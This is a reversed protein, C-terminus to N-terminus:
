GEAFFSIGDLSYCGTSPSYVGGDSRIEVYPAPNSEPEYVAYCSPIAFKETAGVRYGAPLYFTATSTCGAGGSTYDNVSGSLHVFGMSDKRYAVHALGGEANGYAYCYHNPPGSDCFAGPQAACGPFPIGATVPIPTGANVTADSGATGQAGQPGVPGASGPAGPAGASGARGEKALVIKKAGKSCKGGSALSLAGSKKAACVTVNGSGGGSAALAYAAMGLVLVGALVWVKGWSM